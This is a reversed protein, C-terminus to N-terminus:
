RAGALFLREVLGAAFAMGGLCRWTVAARDADEPVWSCNGTPGCTQVVERGLGNALLVGGALLAWMVFVRGRASARRAAEDRVEQLVTDAM